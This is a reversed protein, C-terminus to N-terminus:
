SGILLFEFAFIGPRNRGLLTDTRGRFVLPTVVTPEDSWPRSLPPGSAIDFREEQASMRGRLDWKQNKNKQAVM